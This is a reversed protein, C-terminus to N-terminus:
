RFFYQAHLVSVLKYMKLAETVAVNSNAAVGFAQMSYGFAPGIQHMKHAVCLEFILISAPDITGPIIIAPLRYEPLRPGGHRATCRSSIVDIM